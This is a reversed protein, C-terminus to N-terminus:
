GGGRVAAGAVYALGLIILMTNMQKEVGESVAAMSSSVGEAVDALPNGVADKLGAAVPKVGGTRGLEKNIDRQKALEDNLRDFEKTLEYLKTQTERLRLEQDKAGQFFYKDGLFLNQNDTM